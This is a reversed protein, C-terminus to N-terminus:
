SRPLVVRGEMLRRQTRYVTVRQAQWRGEGDREVQAAVTMVGSPTAIRVDQGSQIPNTLTNPISGDVMCAAALCMAGTGTVARHLREMSVIRIGIDHEDAAIKEGSITTYATPPLLMAIKPNSLPVEEPTAALGMLVGAQRRIQDLLAMLETNTELTEPSELGNIGLATGDVFVVPNTADIMSVALPGYGPFDLTDIENGSPLFAACKSGGPDLYDLRIQAGSGAVGSMTYDGTEVARGDKVQFHVLFRKDTNTNYVRVTTEGDAVSLLGEEVAYPGVASSLNGCAQGYDAVPKDVAIQVFTYDIDVDARTSREIVVVKSLSSIGGGMGNLQRQYPDPSGIVQLFLDDRAQQSKPLDAENFFVGKSTGGRIFVAPIKDASM